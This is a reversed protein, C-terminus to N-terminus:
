RIGRVFRDLINKWRLDLQYYSKNYIFNIGGSGRGRVTPCRNVSMRSKDNMAGRQLATSMRAPIVNREVFRSLLEATAMSMRFKSIVKWTTRKGSIVARCVTSLLVSSMRLDSESQNQFATSYATFACHPFDGMIMNASMNV